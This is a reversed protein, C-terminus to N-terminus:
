ESARIAQVAPPLQTAAALARSMRSAGSLSFQHTRGFAGGVFQPWDRDFAIDRTIRFAGAEDFEARGMHEARGRELVLRRGPQAALSAAPDGGFVGHQRARRMGACPAFRRRPLCDPRVCSIWRRIPRLRRATVLRCARPSRWIVSSQSTSCASPPVRVAEIVPAQTASCSQRLHICPREIMLSCGQLVM